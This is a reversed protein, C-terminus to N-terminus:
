KTVQHKSSILLPDVPMSVSVGCQNAPSDWLNHALFSLCTQYGWQPGNICRTNVFLFGGFEATLPGFRITKRKTCRGFSAHCHQTARKDTVTERRFGGATFNIGRIGLPGSQRADSIQRAVSPRHVQEILVQQHVHCAHFGGHVFTM